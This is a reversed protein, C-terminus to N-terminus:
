QKRYGTNSVDVKVNEAPADLVVKAPYSAGDNLTRFEASLAVADKPSEIYSNVTLRLIRNNVVDVEIGLVDGSKHYDRFDLRVRKGPEVLNFSVKGARWSAQMRAPDPPVYLKVSDVAKQMYGTLDQKKKKAIRSGPGRKRGEKKEETIPVKQIAGDAGYYVRNQFRAKQDGKQSVVTTEIWEYTKLKEKSEIVSQRVAEVRGEVDPNEALAPEATAALLAGVLLVLTANSRTRSKM